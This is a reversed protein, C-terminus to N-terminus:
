AVPEPLPDLEGRVRAAADARRHTGLKELLNHVHNKVTSLEICLRAAIEKNSLGEDILAVVQLERATLPAFEPYHRGRARTALTRMLAAAARPSCATEGRMVATVAIAIDDLTADRAVFARVGAESCAVVTRDDDGVAFAVVNAPATTRALACAVSVGDPGSADVLVVDARVAGNGPVAGDALAGAGIVRLDCRADLAAALAERHVRVPCVVYVCVV